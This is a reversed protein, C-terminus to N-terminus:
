VANKDEEIVAVFCGDMVQLRPDCLSFATDNPYGHLGEGSCKLLAEKLVWFKLLARNKDEARDYQELETASLVKQALRADVKRDMEEADIGVPRDSLVCFVRSKTHSVSFHQAGDAFYPKGRQTRLITPMPLGTKQRYMQALLQLGAQHRDLAGLMMSQIQM